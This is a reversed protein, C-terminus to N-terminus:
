LVQLAYFKGNRLKTNRLITDVRRWADPHDKLRVLVSEAEKKQPSAPSFATEITQDFIEINLETTFDLLEDM